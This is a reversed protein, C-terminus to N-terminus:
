YLPQFESPKENGDADIEILLDDGEKEPYVAQLDDPLKWNGGLLVAMESPTHLPDHIDFVTPYPHGLASNDQLAMEVLDLVLPANPGRVRGSVPDWEFEIVPDHATVGELRYSRFM